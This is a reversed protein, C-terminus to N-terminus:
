RQRKPGLGRDDDLEAMDHGVIRRLALSRQLELLKGLLVAVALDLNLDIWVRLQVFIFFLDFRQLEAGHLHQCRRGRFECWEVGLFEFREVQREHERVLRGVGLDRFARDPLQEHALQLRLADGSKREPVVTKM